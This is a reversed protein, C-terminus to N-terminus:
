RLQDLGCNAIALEAYSVIYVFGDPAGVSREDADPRRRAAVAIDVERREFRDEFLDARRRAVVVFKMGDHDAAGNRRSGGLAEDNRDQFLHGAARRSPAKRNVEIGFEQAFAAGDAVEVRRGVHDNALVLMQSVAGQALYPLFHLEISRDDLELEFFGLNELVGTVGKM